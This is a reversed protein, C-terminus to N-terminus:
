GSSAIGAPLASTAIRGAIALMANMAGFSALGVIYYLPARGLAAVSTRACNPFPARLPLRSNGGRSRASPSRGSM